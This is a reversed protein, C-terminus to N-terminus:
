EGPKLYESYQRALSHDAFVLFSPNKLSKKHNYRLPLGTTEEVVLGGAEEVIIQGAATDWENTPLFCPYLDSTGEAIRCFKLSSGERKESIEYGRSELQNRIQQYKDSTRRASCSVTIQQTSKKCTMPLWNTSDHAAFFAGSGIQALYCTRRLPVYIVGLTPMGNEVLAINVTFDEGGSLYGRTGDLPDVLWYSQWQSRVAYDPIPSEESLVPFNDPLNALEQLIFDNAAHDADTVPSNDAKHNVELSDGKRDFTMILEGAERAINVVASLLQKKDTM